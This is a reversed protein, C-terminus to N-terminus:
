KNGGNLTKNFIETMTKGLEEHLNIKNSVYERQEMLRKMAEQNELKKAEMDAIAQKCLFQGKSNRGSIIRQNLEHTENINKNIDDVLKNKEENLQQGKEEYSLSKELADMRAQAKAIDTQETVQKTAEKQETLHQSIAAVTGATGLMSNISNQIAGM